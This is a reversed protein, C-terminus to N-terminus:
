AAKFGLRQLSDLIDQNVKGVAYCLREEQEVSHVGERMEDQVVAILDVKARQAWELCAHTVEHSILYPSLHRTALHIEAVKRTNTFPVWTIAHADNVYTHELGAKRYLAAHHGRLDKLWQWIFVDFYLRKGHEPYVKFSALPKPKM